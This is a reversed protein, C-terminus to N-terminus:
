GTPLGLRKSRVMGEGARLAAINNGGVTAILETPCTHACSISSLLAEAHKKQRSLAAALVFIREAPTTPGSAYKTLLELAKAPQGHVELLQARLEISGLAGLDMQRSKEVRKPLGPLIGREAESLAKAAVLSPSVVLHRSGEIALTLQRFQDRAKPM